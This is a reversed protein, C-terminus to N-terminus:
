YPRPQTPEIVFAGSSMGGAISSIQAKQVLRGTPVSYTALQGVGTGTFASFAVTATQQTQGHTADLYWYQVTPTGATSLASTVRCQLGLSGGYGQVNATARNASPLSGAPNLIDTTTNSATITVTDFATSGAPNGLGIFGTGPPAAVNLPSLLNGTVLQPKGTTAQRNTSVASKAYALAFIAAFEASMMASLFSPPQIFRNLSADPNVCVITPYAAGPTCAVDQDWYYTSGGYYTRFVRIKAVGTPVTGAPTFTYANQAATLAVATTAACPLSTVQDVSTVHCFQFTPASGVLVPALAGNANYTGTVTPTSPTAPTTPDTANLYTLWNDFAHFQTSTATFKWGTPINAKVLADLETAINAAKQMLVDARFANVFANFTSATDSIWKPSGLGYFTAGDGLNKTRVLDAAVTLTGTEGPLQLGALPYLLKVFTALSDTNLLIQAASPMGDLTPM